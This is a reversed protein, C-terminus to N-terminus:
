TQKQKEAWRKGAPMQLWTPLFAAVEEDSRKGIQKATEYCEPPPKMTAQRGTGGGRTGTSLAVDGGAAEIMEAVRWPDTVGSLEILKREREGLAKLREANKAGLAEDRAKQAAELEALRSTAAELEAARKEALQQYEGRKEAEADERAKQAAKLQELEAALAQRKEREAQVVAIPVHRQEAEESADGEVQSGDTQSEDHSM